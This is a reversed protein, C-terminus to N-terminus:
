DWFTKHKIFYGALSSAANEFCGGIRDKTSYDAGFMTNGPSKILTFKALTKGPDDKSVIRVEMNASARKSQIGVNFGPEIFSTNVIMIYDADEANKDVRVESKGMVMNFMRIFFDPYANEKDNEWKEKWEDGSGPKKKNYDKVKKAVYDEETMKGVKLNDYTFEVKLLKQGKLYGDVNGEVLKFRQAHGSFVFAMVILFLLYKKM